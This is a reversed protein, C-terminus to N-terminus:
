AEPKVSMGAEKRNRIQDRLGVFLAKEMEFTWVLAGKAAKAAAAAVKAATKQAKQEATPAM